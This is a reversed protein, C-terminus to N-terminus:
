GASKSPRWFGEKLKRRPKENGRARSTGLGLDAFAAGRRTQWIQPRSNWQAGLMSVAANVLNGSLTPLSAWATQVLDRISFESAQPVLVQCWAGQVRHYISSNITGEGRASEKM